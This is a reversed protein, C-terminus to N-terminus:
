KPTKQLINKEQRGNVNKVYYWGIFKKNANKQATTLVPVINGIKENYNYIKTYTNKGSIRAGSCDFVVAFQKIKWVPHVEIDDTYKYESDATILKNDSTGM